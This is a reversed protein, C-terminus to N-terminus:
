IGIPCCPRLRARKYIQSSRRNGISGKKGVAGSNDNRSRIQQENISKHLLLAPWPPSPSSRPAATCVTRRGFGSTHLYTLETRERHRQKPTTTGQDSRGNNSTRTCTCLQSHSRSMSRADAMSVAPHTVQNQNPIRKEVKNQALNMNSATVRKYKKHLYPPEHNPEVPLPSKM